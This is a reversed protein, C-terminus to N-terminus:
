SIDTKRIFTGHFSSKIWPSSLEREKLELRELGVVLTGREREGLDTGALRKQVSAIERLVSRRAETLPGEPLLRETAGAADLQELLIRSRMQEIFEFALASDETATVGDRLGLLRGAIEYYYESWDAFFEAKALADEQTDRLDTVAALCEMAAAIAEDRPADRWRM